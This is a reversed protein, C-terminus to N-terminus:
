RRRRFSENNRLEKTNSKAHLKTDEKAKKIKEKMIGSRQAIDECLVVEKRLSKIQASLSAIDAKTRVIPESVASSSPMARGDAADFNTASDTHRSQKRLQKRLEKRQEYVVGIKTTLDGKHVALQEANDIGYAVLLRTERAINQVFRIDERFLFYVRKLDPRRQRRKPLVSMRYLYYFYLARLGTMRKAKHITGNYRAKRPPPNPLLITREPRNQALIRRRISEITYDDGYNRRLRIFREKGPPRVSIDKGMKVEYGLKHLADWFQRETMSQKIATDIDAKVVGRWTPRNEKEALWEGYHKSKGRKPAEIVSLGYERCLKDSERQMDYYDKASRYYKKGDVMSVNNLVFHNHLHNSKDLHTAVLVQHRSGWLQEALKVGIEHAMEPTVEGPAFSQYGHYAVVGDTKDFHRKTAMMQDRAAEVACNIGSVFQKQITDRETSAETKENQTAYAIVDFLGQTQEETMAENKIYAPNTTKDPNEIYIVVMVQRLYVERSLGSRTVLRNFREAETENLWLQIRVNRKRM